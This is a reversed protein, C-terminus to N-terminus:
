KKKQQNAVDIWAQRLASEDIDDLLWRDGTGKTNKRQEFEQAARQRHEAQQEPTKKKTLKKQKM